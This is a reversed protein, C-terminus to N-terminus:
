RHGWDYSTDVGNLSGARKRNGYAAGSSTNCGLHELHGDLPNTTARDLERTHGFSKSWRNIRGTVPDRYPLAKDVYRGTPCLCVEAHCHTEREYVAAKAREFAPGSRGQAYRRESRRKPNPM